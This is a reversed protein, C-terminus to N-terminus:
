CDASRCFSEIRYRVLRWESYRNNSTVNFLRNRDAPREEPKAM